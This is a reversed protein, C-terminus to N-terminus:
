YLSEVKRKKKRREVVVIRKVIDCVFSEKRRQGSVRALMM